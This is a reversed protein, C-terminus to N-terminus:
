RREEPRERRVTSTRWDPVGDDKPWFEEGCDCFWVRGTAGPWIMEESWMSHKTRLRHILALIVYM